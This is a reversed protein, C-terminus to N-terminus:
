LPGRNKKVRLWIEIYDEAQIWRNKAKWLFTIIAAFGFIRFIKSGVQKIKGIIDTAYKKRHLGIVIHKFSM